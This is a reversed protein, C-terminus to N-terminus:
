ALGGQARSLLADEPSVRNGYKFKDARLRLYLALPSAAVKLGSRVEPDQQRM